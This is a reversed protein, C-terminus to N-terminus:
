QARWERCPVMSRGAFIFFLLVCGRWSRQWKRIRSRHGLVCSRGTYQPSTGSHLPLWRIASIRQLNEKCQKKWANSTILELLPIPYFSSSLRVTLLCSIFSHSSATFTSFYVSFKPSFTGSFSSLVCWFSPFAARSASGCRAGHRSLSSLCPPCCPSGAPLCELVGAGCQPESLSLRPGRPSFSASKRWPTNEPRDAPSRVSLSYPVRWLGGQGEEGVRSCSLWNVLHHPVLEAEISFYFLAAKGGLWLINEYANPCSLILYERHSDVPGPSLSAETWPGLTLFENLSLSAAEWVLM